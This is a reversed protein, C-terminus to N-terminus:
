GADARPIVVPRSGSRQKCLTVGNGRENYRVSSLYHKMLLLGRGCSRELNEEERPDAVQPSPLTLVSQRRAASRAPFAM